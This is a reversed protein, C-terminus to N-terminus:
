RSNATINVTYMCICFNHVSMKRVFVEILSCTKYLESNGILFRFCEYRIVYRGPRMSLADLALVPTTEALVSYQDAEKEQGLLKPKQLKGRASVSSAESRDRDGFPDEDQEQHANRRRRTAQIRESSETDQLSRSGSGSSQPPSARSSASSSAGLQMPHLSWSYSVIRNLESTNSPTIAYSGRASFVVQCALFTCHLCRHLHTM